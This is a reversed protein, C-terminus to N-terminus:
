PKDAASPLAKTTFAGAVGRLAERMPGVRATIYGQSTAYSSHGLIATIITPEVGLEALVTATSNRIEHTVFPRGSPHQVGGALQLARFEAGDQEKPIPRGDPRTWLLGHDNAPRQPLWLELAQQVEEVMPIVRWGRDTKPRVLHFNGEIHRTEYGHPIRFGRAKDARDIYPLRQMQWELSILGRRFDLADETLGLCEGQRMGEFFAVLWRSAHPLEAAHALIVMAQPLELASRAVKPKRLEKRVKINFVLSPVGYGDELADRLMKVMVRQVRLVTKEDHGADRVAKNVARVDTPMVDLLRVRGISPVIYHNIAARDSSYTNPRVQEVRMSLWETAWGEITKRDTTGSQRRARKLDGGHQKRKHRLRREAEAKTKGTASIRRRKGSATLGAEGDARWQGSALQTVSGDGYAM